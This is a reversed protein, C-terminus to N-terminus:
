QLSVSTWFLFLSRVMVKLDVSMGQNECSIWDNNNVKNSRVLQSLLARRIESKRWNIFLFDPAENTLALKVKSLSTL